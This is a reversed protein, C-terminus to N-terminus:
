TLFYSIIYSMGLCQKAARAITDNEHPMYLGYYLNFPSNIQSVISLDLRKIDKQMAAAVNIDM